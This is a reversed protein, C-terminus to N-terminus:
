IQVVHLFFWGVSALNQLILNSKKFIESIIAYHPSAQFFQTPYLRYSGCKAKKKSLIIASNASYDARGRPSLKRVVATRSSRKENDSQTPRSNWSIERLGKRVGLKRAKSVPALLWCIARLNLRKLESQEIIWDCCIDGIGEQVNKCCAIMTSTVSFAHMASQQSVTLWTVSTTRSIPCSIYQPIVNGAPVREVM